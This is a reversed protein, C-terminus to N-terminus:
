RRPSRGRGEPPAARASGRPAGRARRRTGCSGGVPCRVRPRRRLLPERSLAFTVSSSSCSPCACRARRARGGSPPRPACPRLARRARTPAAPPARRTPPARRAPRVRDADDVLLVGRPHGLEHRDPVPPHDDRREGEIAPGRRDHRGVQRAARRRPQAHLAAAIGVQRVEPQERRGIAAGDEIEVVEVLRQRRRELPVDLPEDALKTTAARPLPWRRLSWRAAARM